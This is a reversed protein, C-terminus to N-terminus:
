VERIFYDSVNVPDTIVWLVANEVCGDLYFLVSSTSMYYRAIM